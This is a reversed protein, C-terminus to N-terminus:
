EERIYRIFQWPIYIKRHISGSITDFDIACVHIQQLVDLNFCNTGSVLGNGFGGSGSTDPNVFRVEKVPAM